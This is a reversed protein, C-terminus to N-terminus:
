RLKLLKLLKENDRKMQEIDLELQTNEVIRIVEEENRARRIRQRDTETLDTLFKYIDVRRRRTM